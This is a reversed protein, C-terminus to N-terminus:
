CKAASGSNSFMRNSLVTTRACGQAAPAELFVAPLDCLSEPTTAAPETGFDVDTYIGQAIGQAKQQGGALPMVNSLRFVQNGTKVKLPHNGVASVVGVCKQQGNRGVLRFRNDGSAFVAFFQTVVVRMPVFLSMQHLTKEVLDLM